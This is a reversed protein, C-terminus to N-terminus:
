QAVRAPLHTEPSKATPRRGSLPRPKKPAVGPAMERCEDAIRNWEKDLSQVRDPHDAALNQTECRDSALDYLEWPEGKAAVLKWDGARVSRHGDHCWWLSEHAPPAEPDGLSAAFSKGQMPPATQAEDVEIGALELVTPVLDICHVPQRRLEGKAAIGAPWHVIWPTAIGGEHTWTKHRRFPTNSCTSWGPGLCLYSSRSGMPAAPDHGEGRVMIEASCGNDSLFLILTDDVAGMLALQDIIRGIERDMVDVMAAHIAMKTAQFEQKEETLDDWPLPRNVEGPGLKKIADAFHYPPGLDREVESLNTTVIGKDAVRKAREARVKEWGARYRERYKEIVDAPAHLPFHPATFAVYHFFPAGAHDRAHEALCAVAHDGIATTTYFDDGADVPGGDVTIGKPDFFNSQGVGTVDLSRDFGSELPKGDIHWKGSHYSRYGAPALRQSLLPAWAPRQGGVGGKTDPLSDRHIAQPYYGTLLAARTPWCRATNYGQTYLLGGAALRDIHPTDIEGGYCGVDSFGLDDALIVLVNPRKAERDDAVALAAQGCVVMVAAMRRMAMM